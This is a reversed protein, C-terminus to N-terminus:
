SSPEIPRLRERIWAAFDASAEDRNGSQEAVRVLHEAIQLPPADVTFGNRELFTNMVVYATRKNGDLFPQNQSIGIGLSAAQDALDAGEYHALNQPRLVASELLGHSRLPAIEWGTEIMILEHLAIVEPVTLYRVDGTV